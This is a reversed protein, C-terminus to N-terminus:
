DDDEECLEREIKKKSHMWLERESLYGKKGGEGPPLDQYNGDISLGNLELTIQLFQKELLADSSPEARDREQKIVPSPSTRNYRVGSSHPSSPERKQQRVPSALRKTYSRSRRQPVDEDIIEYHPGPRGPTNKLFKEEYKNEMRVAKNYLTILQGSIGNGSIFPKMLSRTEHSFGSTNKIQPYEKIYLDPNLYTFCRITVRREIEITPDLVGVDASHGFGQKTDWYVLIIKVKSLIDMPLPTMATKHAQVIQEIIRHGIQTVNRTEKYKSGAPLTNEWVVTYADANGRRILYKTTLGKRLHGIAEESHGKGLLPSVQKDVVEVNWSMDLDDELRETLIQPDKPEDKPEDKSEGKSEDKSEDKPKAKENAPESDLMPLDEQGQKQPAEQRARYTSTNHEPPRRVTTQEDVTNYLELKKRVDALRLVQEDNLFGRTELLELSKLEKKLTESQVAMHTINETVNDKVNNQSRTAPRATKNVVGAKRAFKAVTPEKAM